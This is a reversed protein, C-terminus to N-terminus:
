VHARGIKTFTAAFISAPHVGLEEILYAIKATLVRTKGSGAGAFVLQPWEECAIAKKQVDNLVVRQLIPPKSSDIM